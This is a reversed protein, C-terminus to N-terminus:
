NDYCVKLKNSQILEVVAQDVDVASASLYKSAGCLWNIWMLRWSQELEKTRAAYDMLVSSRLRDRAQQRQLLLREPDGILRLVAQVYENENNAVEGGFAFEEGKRLGRLTRATSADVGRVGDMCVISLGMWLSHLTTTGGSIPSTDLMIDSIHGLEMFQTLPQQHLVSVRDLPMGAAKVRPYMHSHAAEADQEKVMIILRATSEEHLIRGWIRLMSDTIKASSNLSILTPYGNQLMPPQECFPAYAPPSYSAMCKMHFLKESYYPAHSVPAIGNDVLRYDMGKMGLTHMYGLWTVQVPAPRRAFVLLRHGHTFGSLDVLIDIQDKRIINFVEEDSLLNIDRWHPVLSRMELTISDEPGNSYVHIDVLDSNHNALVPKMFFAVSHERFDATVYGIKLKKWPDRNLVSIKKAKRTLPDAFRRAWDEAVQLSFLPENSAHSHLYARLLWQSSNAGKNSVVEDILRCAREQEGVSMLALSLLQKAQNDKPRIALVTELASIAPKWYALRTYVLGVLLWLRPDSIHKPILVMLVTLAELFRNRRILEREINILEQTLEVDAKEILFKQPTLTM